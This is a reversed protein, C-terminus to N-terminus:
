VADNFMAKEPYDLVSAAEWHQILKSVAYSIIVKLRAPGRFVCLHM